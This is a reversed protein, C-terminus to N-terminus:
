SVGTGTIVWKTSTVKVVTAMGYRALTRTGTSGGSVWQLTDTTIPITVSVAASADNIFTLVTGVPYAVSSNAPITLAATTSGTYYITKGSDALVATYAGTQGSIPTELYGANYKTNASDAIQVSHVGSFANFTATIGATSAVYNWNGTSNVTARSVTNSSFGLTNASPLYVGNAPVTAGNVVMYTTTLSTTASLTTFAGTSPTTSGIPTSNIAGASFTTGFYNVAEVIDTGNSVLVMKKGVPVSVGTLGTVKVTVAASSNNFVFYLKRNTPVILERAVGPTGNVVLYMNRAVGTAGNPITITVNGATVDISSSDYGSIAQELLTGLNTNTITGWTGTYEGDAPLTIGLNTSYTAM